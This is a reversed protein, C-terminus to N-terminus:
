RDQENKNMRFHKKSWAMNVDHYLYHYGEREREREREIERERERERDIKRIWLLEKRTELM